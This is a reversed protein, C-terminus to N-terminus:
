CYYRGREADLEDDRRQRLAFVAMTGTVAAAIVGIAGWILHQKKMM